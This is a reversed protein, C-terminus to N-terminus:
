WWVLCEDLCAFYFIFVHVRRYVRNIVIFWMKCCYLSNLFCNRFVLVLIVSGRSSMKLMEKKRKWSFREGGGIGCNRERGKGREEVGIEEGWANKERKKGRGRGRCWTRKEKERGEGRGEDGWGGKREKKIEGGHCHISM